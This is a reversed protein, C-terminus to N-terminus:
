LTEDSQRQLEEGYRSIWSLLFLAAPILFRSLELHFDVTYSKVYEPNLFYGFEFLRLEMSFILFEAVSYVAAQALTLWGLKQLNASVSTDFPRGQAMPSLIRHLIHAEVASIALVLAGTLMMVAVPVLPRTSGPVLHALNLRVNGLTLHLDGGVLVAVTDYDRISLYYVSTIILGAFLFIAAAIFIVKFIKAFRDLVKATKKLKEM